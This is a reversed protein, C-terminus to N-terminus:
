RLGTDRLGDKLNEMWRRTGQYRCSESGIEAAQRLSEEFGCGDSLFCCFAGHLIDGAGMTDVVEVRPVDITGTLSGAAFRIRDAGHTIAVKSVGCARLYRIAEDEDTCSPPLFDASCIAIDVSKLLEDTGPKWSGGDFVVTAGASRAAQAWPLGAEMAHGDVLLIDVGALVAADAERRQITTRTTNVSVVRRQGAGDVWVSSIPPIEEADPTLDILQVGYRRCGERVLSALAHRGVPTALMPTGGLFGFTIAANTAPGGVLVEQSQAVVKQNELPFDNLNYIVDITSLGVFVGRKAM